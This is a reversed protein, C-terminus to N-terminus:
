SNPRETITVQRSMIVGGRILQLDVKRGISDAGLRATINRMRRTSAGDVSLIIDGAVIGGEVAPGGETLSMVMLGSSQGATKALAEQVAVPRLAVGLWGYSIRGQKLLIPVVRGITTAPIVLVQRRPAFTSMGLFGSAADFVPGGEESRALDIDLLVKQEIRGGHSSYWEPGVANIVGLRVTAHGGADAGFAIALAGVQGVASVVSSAASQQELKLVTINTGPDRGATKAKITSGSAIVLEFEDCEPLSQESTIAVDPRWLTATIHRNESLRIAAIASNAAASREILASSFQALSNARDVM